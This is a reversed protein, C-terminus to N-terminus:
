FGYELGLTWLTSARLGGRNLPLLANVIFTMGKKTTLKAGVSANLLDDRRDPIDSPYITRTFPITIQVPAPLSFKQEGLQWESIVDFAFTAWPVLLQDFGATALIADQQDDSSRIAVGANAHPAFDGYRGSVIGLIRASTGGSGLFDDENGTPLRVDGLLAFGTRAKSGGPSLNVKARVAVDGIGSASGNVDATASLIPASATGGFYHAPNPGFPVIQGFSHGDISNSVYPVAVSVDIRDTVGYTLFGITALVDVNLSTHVTIFENEFIPNGEGPPDTDQHTFNFDLSNIPVGRLTSFRISSVNAGILMRRRGLTQAREAFIPGGSVNTRVPAGGEFSYTVGSTTASIPINSVNAGIASGLFAIIAANGAEASPIFHRGHANGALVLAPLCLPEGCNGFSFLGLELKERLGQGQARAAVATVLALLAVSRRMHGESNFPSSRARAARTPM